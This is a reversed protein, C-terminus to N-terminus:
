RFDPGLSRAPLGSSTLPEPDSRPDLLREPIPGGYLTTWEPFRDGLLQALAETQRLLRPRLFAVAETVDVSRRRVDRMTLSHLSQRAIAPM